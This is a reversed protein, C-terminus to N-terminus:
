RMPWYDNGDTLMKLAEPDGHAWLMTLRHRNIKWVNDRKTFYDEYYGGVNAIFQKSDPSTFIHAAIVYCKTYGYQSDVEAVYNSVMHQFASFPRLAGSVVGVWQSNSLNRPGVKGGDASCLSFEMPDAFESAFGAWDRQDICATWRCVSEIIKTREVMSAVDTELM